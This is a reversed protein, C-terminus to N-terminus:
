VKNTNLKKDEQNNERTNVQMESVRFDAGVTPEHNSPITLDSSIFRSLMCTKGVAPPGALVVKAISVEGATTAMEEEGELREEIIGQRPTHAAVNSGDVSEREELNSTNNLRVLQSIPKRM